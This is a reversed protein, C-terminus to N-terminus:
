FVLMEEPFIELIECNLAQWGYSRSRLVSCLKTWIALGPSANLLLFTQGVPKCVWIPTLSWQKKCNQLFIIAPCIWGGCHLSPLLIWLAWHIGSMSALTQKQFQIRTPSVWQFLSTPQIFVIDQHLYNYSIVAVTRVPLWVFEKNGLLCLHCWLAVTMLFPTWHLHKICDHVAASGFLSLKVAASCSNLLVADMFLFVHIVSAWRVDGPATCFGVPTYRVNITGTYTLNVGWPQQGVRIFVCPLAHLKCPKWMPMRQWMGCKSQDIM